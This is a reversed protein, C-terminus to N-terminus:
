SRAACLSCRYGSPSCTGPHHQMSRQVICVMLPHIVPTPPTARATRGPRPPDPRARVLAEDACARFARAASAGAAAVAAATAAAARGAGALAGALAQALAALEAREGPTCGDARASAAEARLEQQRPAPTLARGSAATPRARAGTCPASAARRCLPRARVRGPAGVRMHPMGPCAHRDPHM